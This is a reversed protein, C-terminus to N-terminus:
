AQPAEEDDPGDPDGLPLRHVGQAQELKVRQEDMAAAVAEPDIPAVELVELVHHRQFGDTDKIEPYRLEKVRCSIVLTIEEGHDLQLGNVSLAKNLGGSAGPMSVGSALIRMGDVPRFETMTDSM